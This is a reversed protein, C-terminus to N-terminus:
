SIFILLEYIGYGIHYFSNVIGLIILSVMLTKIFKSNINLAKKEEEFFLYLLIFVIIGFLINIISNLIVNEFMNFYALKTVFISLIIMFIWSKNEEFFSKEEKKKTIREIIEPSKKVIADTLGIATAAQAGKKAVEAAGKISFSM